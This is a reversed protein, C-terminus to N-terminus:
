LNSYDAYWWKFIFCHAFRVQNSSYEPLKDPACPIIAHHDNADGLCIWNLKFTLRVSPLHLMRCDDYKSATRVYINLDGEFIIKGTFMSFNLMNSQFNSKVM